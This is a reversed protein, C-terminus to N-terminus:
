ILSSFQSIITQNLAPGSNDIEIEWDLVVDAAKQNITRIKEDSVFHHGSPSRNKIRDFCVDLPCHLRILKLTYLSSLNELVSSFYISSGTAEFIVADETALIEHVAAEEIDFGDRNLGSEPLGHQDIHAIVLPEVRLFKLGFEQELLTGVYSKGSGKPGILIYVKKNEAM